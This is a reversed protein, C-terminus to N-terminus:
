ESHGKLSTDVTCTCQCTSVLCVVSVLRLNQIDAQGESKTSGTSLMLTNNNDDDDLQLEQYPLICIKYICMCVCVFLFVCMFVRVCVFSHMCVYCVYMHIHTQTLIHTCIRFIYFYIQHNYHLELLTSIYKVITIYNQIHLFINSSQLTIRYTSIYKIITIYNQIHVFM